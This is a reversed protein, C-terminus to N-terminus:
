QRTGRRMARDASTPFFVSAISDKDACTTRVTTPTAIAAAYSCVVGGIAAPSVLVSM